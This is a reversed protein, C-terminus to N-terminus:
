HQYHSEACLFRNFIVIHSCPYIMNLNHSNENYQNVPIYSDPYLIPITVYPRHAKVEKTISNATNANKEAIIFHVFMCLKM